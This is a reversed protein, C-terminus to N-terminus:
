SAQSSAKGGSRRRLSRGLRRYPLCPQDQGLGLENRHGLKGGLSAQAQSVSLQACRGHTRGREQLEFDPPGKGVASDVSRM